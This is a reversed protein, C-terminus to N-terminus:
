SSQNAEINLDIRLILIQPSNLCLLFHLGKQVSFMVTEKHIRNERSLFFSLFISERCRSSWSWLSISVHCFSASSHFHCKIFLMFIIKILVLICKSQGKSGSLCGSGPLIWANEHQEPSSCPVPGAYQFPKEFSYMRANTLLAIDRRM